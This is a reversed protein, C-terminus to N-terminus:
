PKQCRTFAQTIVSVAEKPRRYEDFVGKNNYGRPRRLIRGQMGTRADCFMWLAVGCVREEGCVFDTVERHFDAQYEETWRAHFRDHFGPLADAGTESIIFPKNRSEPFSDIYDLTEKLFPKINGITRIEEDETDYWGPYCNMAIVDAFEFVVHNRSHIVAFTVPRSPDLKKVLETLEKYVPIAEPENSACENCFGWLIVSPHNISERIMAAINRREAERFVPDLMKEAPKKGWALSEEWVLFGMEDCRDLFGQNQPYHSGRIFNCGCKKMLMLDNVHIADPLTYGFDPHHEHRNFGLLKLPKGNLLLNRGCVEITRLGFREDISDGEMECRVCHLHPTEPTWLRPTPIKAEIRAHGDIIECNETFAESDDFAIFLAAREPLNGGFSVDLEVLGADLDLVSVKVREFHFDPLIQLTLDYYIGGYAYFDCGLQFQPIRKEDCQNNIAILLVHKGAQVMFDFYLPTFPLRSGGIEKGDCFIRCSLGMGGLHLRLRSTKKLRFETRYCGTGKQGAFTEFVDFCGPLPLHDTFSLEEPVIEELPAKKLFAFDWNEPLDIKERVDFYPYHSM